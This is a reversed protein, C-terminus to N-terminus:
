DAASGPAPQAYPTQPVEPYADIGAFSTVRRQDAAAFLRTFTHEAFARGAIVRDPRGSPAPPAGRVEAWLNMFLKSVAGSADRDHALAFGATTEVSREVQIPQDFSVVTLRTLIPIVGHAVSNRGGAHEDITRWLVGFMHPLA